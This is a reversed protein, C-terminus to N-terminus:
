HSEGVLLGSPFKACFADLSRDIAKAEKSRKDYRKPEMYAHFLLVYGDRLALLDEDLM